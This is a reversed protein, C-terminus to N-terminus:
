HGSGIMNGGDYRPPSPALRNEPSATGAEVRTRDAGHTRATLGTPDSATCATLAVAALLVLTTRVSPM